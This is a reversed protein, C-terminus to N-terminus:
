GRADRFHRYHRMQLIGAISAAQKCASLENEEERLIFRKSLLCATKSPLLREM